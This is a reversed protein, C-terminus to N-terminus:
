FDFARTWGIALRICQTENFVDWRQSASTNSLFCSILHQQKGVEGTYHEADGQSLHFGSSLASTSQAHLVIWSSSCEQSGNEQVM